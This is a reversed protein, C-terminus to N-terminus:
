QGKLKEVQAVVAAVQAAFDLGTTDMDIAGEPRVLPSHERESDERDRAEIRDAEAVIEGPSPEAIGDQLLRRRAREKLDAVLFVKLDADHFVVSGMDRGDAILDGHRGIARQVGLLWTRVAPLKAVASVVATVEPTRLEWTLRRAGLYIEVERGMPRVRIGLRDLEDARLEKWTERAVGAELLGYSLSRYLAGSDLHRFGLRLAVERATSSKGSGAPGDLTVVPGMKRRPAAGAGRPGRSTIGELLKWFGPFSVEVVERGEIEINNGPVAGLVGFAMAIRHDGLADIRGTLPRDTGEVELGDDMEEVRVGVARLNQVLAAIRDTEKVRLEAAGTIRTVGEARAALAAIVPIEDILSPIEDATIEVARLSDVAGLVLDGVPEWPLSGDVPPVTLAVGMRRFVDLFGVRNPNLGVGEVGFDGPGAAPIGLAGLALVFAASSPDGPIEMDLPLLREPPDSLEVVWRGLHERSAVLAGMMSFMRETHDRSRQPESVQVSTGSVLAALLIASKVQASAVPSEYHLGRLSGGQVRVPLRGEEGLWEFRAGMEGLPDSVRRMPRARLSSDGSVVAELPLGALVGMMLRAGTGSNGFDLPTAATSRLGRLGRGRIRVVQGGSSFEPLDAGLARLCAATSLPDEGALLGTLRSEGEALAALILARQTLSKDGPVRFKV